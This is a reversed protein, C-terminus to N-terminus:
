EKCETRQPVIGVCVAGEGLMRQALPRCGVPDSEGPDHVIGLVDAKVQILGRM